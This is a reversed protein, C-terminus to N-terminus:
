EPLINEIYAWRVVDGWYTDEFYTTSDVCVNRILLVSSKVVLKKDATHWLNNRYWNAGYIIYDSKGRDVLSSTKNKSLIIKHKESEKELKQKLQETM